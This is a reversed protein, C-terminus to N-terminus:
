DGWSFFCMRKHFQGRWRWPSELSSHLFIEKCQYPAAICIYQILAAISPVFQLLLLSKSLFPSVIYNIMSETSHWVLAFGLLSNVSSKHSTTPVFQSNCEDISDSTNIQPPIQLHLPFRPQQGIHLSTETKDIWWGLYEWGTGGRKSRGKKLSGM